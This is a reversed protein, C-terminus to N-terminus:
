LWYEFCFKSAFINKEEKSLSLTILIQKNPKKKEIIYPIAIFMTKINLILVSSLNFDEVILVKQLNVSICM